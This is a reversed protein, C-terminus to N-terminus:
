AEVEVTEVQVIAARLPAVVRALDVVIEEPVNWQLLLGALIDIVRDYVEGTIPTGDPTAVQRHATRMAEVTSQRVGKECVMVIADAFHKRLTPMDSHFFYPGIVPDSGAEAYFAQVLEPWTRGLSYHSLVNRVTLGSPLTLPETLQPDERHRAASPRHPATAMTPLADIYVGETHNNQIAAPPTYTVPAAPLPQAPAQRTRRDIEIIYGKLGDQRQLLETRLAAIKEAAAEDQTKDQKKDIKEKLDYYGWVGAGTLLATLVVYLFIEM